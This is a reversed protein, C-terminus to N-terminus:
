SYIAKTKSEREFQQLQRVWFQRTVPFAVANTNKGHGKLGHQQMVMAVSSIIFWGFISNEEIVSFDTM